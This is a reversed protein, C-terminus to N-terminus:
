DHIEKAIRKLEDLDHAATLNDMSLWIGDHELIERKAWGLVKIEMGSPSDTDKTVLLIGGDEPILDSWEIMVDWIRQIIAKTLNPAVFTGPVVKLMCSALFGSFRDPLNRTMVVTMPM